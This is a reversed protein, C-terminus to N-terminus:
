VLIYQHVSRLLTSSSEYNKKKEGAQKSSVKQTPKKKGKRKWPSRSIQLLQSRQKRFTSLEPFLLCPNMKRKKFRCQQVEAGEQAPGAMIVCCALSWVLRAAGPNQVPTLWSQLRSGIMVLVATGSPNRMLLISNQFAHICQYISIIQVPIGKSLMYPYFIDFRVWTWMWIM